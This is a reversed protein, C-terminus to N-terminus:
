SIFTIFVQVEFSTKTSRGCTVFCTTVPMLCSTWIFLQVDTMMLHLRNRILVIENHADHRPLNM